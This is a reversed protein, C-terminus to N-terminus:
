GWLIRASWSGSFSEMKWYKSEFKKEKLFNGKSSIIWHKTSYREPRTLCCMRGRARSIRCRRWNPASSVSSFIRQNTAMGFSGCSKESHSPIRRKSLHKKRMALALRSPIASITLTTQWYPDDLCEGGCPSCTTKLASPLPPSSLMTDMPCKPQERLVIM